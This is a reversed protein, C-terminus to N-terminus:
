GPFMSWYPKVESLVRAFSPREVLRLLYETLHRRGDGFPMVKNAYFLAPAAACDALTFADGMAWPGARMWDDAITYATALQAKAQEVGYADRKDEPRLKDTVIKGMPVNVYQDYFRDRLHCERAADADSPILRGERAYRQEAYQLVLTSEPVTVRREEDHLVPFKGLPWVELFAARETENGLDVIRKAFPVELEYLGILAKMCFSSLPHFHLTLSM